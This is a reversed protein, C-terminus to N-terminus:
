RLVKKDVKGSESRPLSDVLEVREPIKQRMLSRETLFEAVKAVDRADDDSV